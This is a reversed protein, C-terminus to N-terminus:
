YDIVFTLKRPPTLVTVTVDLLYPTVNNVTIDKGVRFHARYLLVGVKNGSPLIANNLTMGGLAWYDADTVGGGERAGSSGKSKANGLDYLSGGSKISQYDEVVGWQMEIQSSTKLTLGKGRYPDWDPRLEIWSITGLKV